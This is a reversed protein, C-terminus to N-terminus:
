LADTNISECYSEQSVETQDTALSIHLGAYKIRDREDYVKLHGWDLVGKLFRIEDSVTQRSAAGLLNDVWMVQLAKAPQPPIREVRNPRQVTVGSEVRKFGRSKQVRQMKGDFLNGSCPMGYLGKEVMRIQGPRIAGAAAKIEEYDADSIDHYPNLDPAKPIWTPIIVGARQRNRDEASLFAGKVDGGYWVFGFSLAFVLCLLIAWISPTGVYTNVKQKDTFGKAFCRAKPTREAKKGESHNLKSDAQKPKRKGTEDAERDTDKKEEKNPGTKEKWTLRWGMQMFADVEDRNVERGLVGQGIINRLWENRMAINFDGRVVEEQTAPIQTSGRKFNDPVEIPSANVLFVEGVPAGVGMDLLM